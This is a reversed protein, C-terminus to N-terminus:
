LPNKRPPSLWIPYLYPDPRRIGRGLQLLGKLLPVATKPELSETKPLKLRRCARELIEDPIAALERRFRPLSAQATLLARNARAWFSGDIAIARDLDAKAGRADGSIRKLEGRWTLAESDMSGPVIAADLDARAPDENGCLLHAAGRWCVAEWNGGSVARDLLPLAEEPRGLWLLAEGHWGLGGARFDPDTISHTKEFEKLAARTRGLCLLTEALFGRSWVADPMSRLAAALDEHAQGLRCLRLERVGAAHRMWGYREQPFGRLANLAEVTGADGAAGMSLLIGQYLVAWPARAQRPPLARLAALRRAYYSEPLPRLWNDSWPRLLRERAALGGTDLVKEAEAFAEPFRDLAALAMFRKISGRSGAPTKKLFTEFAGRMPSWRQAQQHLRGLSFDFAPEDRRHKRGAELVQVADDFRAQARLLDGLKLRPSPNEPELRAAARLLAEAQRLWGRREFFGALRLSAEACGRAGRIAARYAKEADQRRGREELIRGRLVERGPTGAGGADRLFVEAKEPRGANMHLEALRTDIGFAGPAKRRVRMYAQEAERTRGVAELARGLHYDTEPDGRERKRALTLQKVAAEAEGQDLLLAGLRLRAALHGPDQDLAAEFTERAGSLNGCRALARGLLVRTDIRSPAAALASELHARAEKPRDQELRIEGLKALVAVPVGPRKSAEELIDAAEDAAGRGALVDALLLVAEAGRGARRLLTEAEQLSGRALAIEGLKLCARHAGPDLRLSEKLHKEAERTRGRQLCLEGLRLRARPSTPSTRVADRFHRLAEMTRGKRIAIEGLRMLAGLPETSARAAAKFEAAARDLEGAALLSEAARMRAQGARRLLEASGRETGLRTLAQALGRLAGADAPDRQLKKAWRRIAADNVRGRM